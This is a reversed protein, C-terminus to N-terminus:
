QIYSQKFSNYKYCLLFFGESINRCRYKARKIAGRCKIMKASIFSRDKQTFSNELGTMLCFSPSEEAEITGLRSHWVNAGLASPVKWKNIILKHGPMLATQVWEASSFRIKHLLSPTVLVASLPESHGIAQETTKTYKQTLTGYKPVARTSTVNHGKEGAAKTLGSKTSIQHIYCM